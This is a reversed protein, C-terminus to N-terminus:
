GGPKIETNNVNEPWATVEQIATNAEHANGSRATITDRNNLYDATCASTLLVPAVLLAAVTKSKTSSPM